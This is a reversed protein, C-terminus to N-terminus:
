AFFRAKAAGSDIAKRAVEAGAEFSGAKKLGWLMIAAGLILSDHTAGKQGNLAALGAEAAQASVRAADFESVHAELESADDMGPILPARVEQQIGIAQPKFEVLQEAGKDHVVYM